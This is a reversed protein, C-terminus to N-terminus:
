QFDCFGNVCVFNLGANCDGKATCSAGRDGPKSQCVQNICYYVESPPSPGGPVVFPNCAQFTPVSSQERFSSCPAGLSSSSCTGNGCYPTKINCTIASPVGSTNYNFGCEDNENLCYGNNCNGSACDEKSVCKSLREGRVCGCSGNVCFQGAACPNQSNCVTNYTGGPCCANRVCINGAGCNTSSSCSSFCVGNSCTGNNPCDASTACQACAGTIGTGKVCVLNGQFCDNNSTCTGGIRVCEGNKSCVSQNAGTGPCTASTQCLKPACYGAVCAEGITTDCDSTKTCTRDTCYKDVCSQNAACQGNSTCPTLPNPTNYFFAYFTLGLAILFMIIALILWIIYWDRTSSDDTNQILPLTTSNTSM